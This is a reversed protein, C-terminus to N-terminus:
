PRAGPSCACLDATAKLSFRLTCYLSRFCLMPTNHVSSHGPPENPKLMGRLTQVHQMLVDVSAAGAEEQSSMIEQGVGCCPM